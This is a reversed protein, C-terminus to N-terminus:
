QLPRAEEIGILRMIADVAYAFFLIYGFLKLLSM